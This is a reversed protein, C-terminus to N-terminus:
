VQKIPRTPVPLAHRMLKTAAPSAVDFVGIAQRYWSPFLRDFSLQLDTVIGIVSYPSSKVYGETCLYKCYLNMLHITYNDNYM